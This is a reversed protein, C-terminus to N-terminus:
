FQMFYFMFKEMKIKKTCTKINWARSYRHARKLKIENTPKM